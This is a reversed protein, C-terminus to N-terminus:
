KRFFFNAIKQSRHRMILNYLYYRFRPHRGFKNDHYRMLHLAYGDLPINKIHPQRPLADGNPFLNPFAMNFLGETNYENIPSSGITPWDITTPTATSATQVFDKIKEMEREANPLRFAFSSVEHSPHIYTQNDLHSINSDISSSVGNDTSISHLQSSINTCAEPLSSISVHNIQVDSYYKDHQMKYLLANVVHSKTVYCAYCNGKTGHRKVVLIDIDSIHRPLFNEIQVTQQPCCITHGSYKYQGSRAHIVQLIPSVRAILM